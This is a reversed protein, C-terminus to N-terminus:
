VIVITVKITSGASNYLEGGGSQKLIEYKVLQLDLEPCQMDEGEVLSRKMRTSLRM